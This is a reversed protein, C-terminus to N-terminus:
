SQRQSAENVLCQAKSSSPRSTAPVSKSKCSNTSRPTAVALYLYCHRENVRACINPRGRRQLRAAELRAMARTLGGGQADTQDFPSGKSAKGEMM